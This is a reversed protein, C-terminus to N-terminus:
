RRTQLLGYPYSHRPHVWERGADSSPPPKTKLRVVEKTAFALMALSVHRHWGHWSRTENHNLGLENALDFDQKM